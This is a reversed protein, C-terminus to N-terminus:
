PGTRADCELDVSAHMVEENKNKKDPCAADQKNEPQCCDLGLIVRRLILKPEQQDIHLSRTLSIGLDRENTLVETTKAPTTRPPVAQDPLLAPM